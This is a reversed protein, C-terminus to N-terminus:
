AFSITVTNLGDIQRRMRNVHFYRQFIFKKFDLGTWKPVCSTKLMEIFSTAWRCGRSFEQRLGDSWEPGCWFGIAPFRLM